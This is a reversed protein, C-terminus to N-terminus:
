RRGAAAGDECTRARVRLLQPLQPPSRSSGLLYLQLAEWQGVAWEGLEELSPCCSAAAAPVDGRM